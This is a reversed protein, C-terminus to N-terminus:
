IKYNWLHQCASNPKIISLMLCRSVRGFDDSDVAALVILMEFLTLPLLTIAKPPCM